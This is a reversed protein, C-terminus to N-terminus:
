RAGSVYLRGRQRCALRLRDNTLRGVRVLNGSPDKVSFERMGWPQDALDSVPLGAASWAAHLEDVNRAHVYCGSANRIPDVTPDTALHKREPGPTTM